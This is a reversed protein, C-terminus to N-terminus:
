PKAECPNQSDNKEFFPEGRPQRLDRSMMRQVIPSGAGDLLSQGDQKGEKSIIYRGRQDGRAGVVVIYGSRGVRTGLIAQRLSQVSTLSEGVALMGIVRGKGDTFPEFATLFPVGLVNSHGRFPKGQLGAVVAPTAGGDPARAPIYTGLARRGRGDLVTTAVRMLDGQENMRQFVSADVGTARKVEDVVAMPANPSPDNGIWQGDLLLKPLAVSDFRQSEQNVASWRVTEPAASLRRRSFIQRAAALHRDMREQLITNAMECSGYVDRAVQMINAEAMSKLEQEAKSAVSTQFQLVYSLTVLM